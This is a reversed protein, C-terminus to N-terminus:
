QPKKPDSSLETQLTQAQKLHERLFPLTKSASQHVADDGKFNLHHEYLMASQQMENVMLDVYDVDFEAGEAGKVKNLRTQNNLSLGGEVPVGKSAALKKREGMTTQHDEVMMKAFKRVSANGAKRSAVKSAAVVMLDSQTAKNLFDSDEVPVSSQGGDSKATKDAPSPAAKITCLTWCLLIALWLAVSSRPSGHRRSAGDLGFQWLSRGPRPLFKAPYAM